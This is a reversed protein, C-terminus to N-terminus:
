VPIFEFGESKSFNVKNETEAKDSLREDDTSGEFDWKHLLANEQSYIEILSTFASNQVVVNSIEGAEYETFNGTYSIGNIKLKCEDLTSGIEFEFCQITKQLNKINAKKRFGYAYIYLDAFGTGM